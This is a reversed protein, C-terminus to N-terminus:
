MIVGRGVHGEIPADVASLKAGHLVFAADNQVPPRVEYALVISAGLPWELTAAGM